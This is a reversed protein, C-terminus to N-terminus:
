LTTITVEAPASLNGTAGVAVVTYVYNHRSLVTVDRLQPQTIRGGLRVTLATAERRSVLYGLAGPVASWTVTVGDSAANARLGTPPPLDPALPAVRLPESPLSDLRAAGNRAVVTFNGTPAGPVTLTLNEGSTALVHPVVQTGVRVSYESVSELPSNPQLTLIIAGREGPVASLVLPVSPAITAAVEVTLVTAVGAVGWRSIPTISYVFRHAIGRPIRDTFTNVNAKTVGLPLASEPSSAEKRSIKCTVGILGVPLTWRLSVVGGDDRNLFNLPQFNRLPPLQKRLVLSARVLSQKQLAPALVREQSPAPSAQFTGSLGTLGGPQANTPVEVPVTQAPETELNNLTFLATVSYRYRRDPQLTTDTYRLAPTSKLRLSLRARQKAAAILEARSADGSPSEGLLDELLEPTTQVISGEIPSTTLRVPKTNPTDLDQRYLVYRIPSLTGQAPLWTIEARRVLLLTQATPLRQARLEPKLKLEDLRGVALPIASPRRWDPINLTMTAPASVRGFGDVLALRYTIQAPVELTDVFFEEKNDSSQKIGTDQDDLIVLPKKHLPKGDRQLQYSVGNLATEQAVSLRNWRLSVVGAEPTAVLGTPLPPQPDSGVRFDKLTALPLEKGTADAGALEYSVVAGEAVQPDTAGLPNGPVTLPQLRTSLLAKQRLAANSFRSLDLAAPASTQFVLRRTGDTRYLRYGGQPLGTTGPQWRLHVEPKGAVLATAASLTATVQARVTSAALAVLLVLIPRTIM